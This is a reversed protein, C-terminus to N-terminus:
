ALRGVPSNVRVSWSEPLGCEDCIVFTEAHGDIAEGIPREDFSGTLWPRGSEDIHGSTGLENQLYQVVHEPDRDLQRSGVATGERALAGLTRDTM